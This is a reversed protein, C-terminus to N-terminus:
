IHININLVAIGDHFLCFLAKGVVFTQRTIVRGKALVDDLRNREIHVHSLVADAGPYFAAKDRLLM